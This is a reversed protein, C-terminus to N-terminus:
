SWRVSANAGDTEGQQKVCCCPGLRRLENRRVRRVRRVEEKVQEPTHNVLIEQTDIGGLFAIKGGAGLVVAPAPWRWVRLVEGRQMEEADLLLAEDLALNGALTPLSHDLFQM